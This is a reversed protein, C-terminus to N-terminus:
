EGRRWTVELVNQHPPRRRRGPRWFCTSLWQRATSPLCGLGVLRTENTAGGFAKSINPDTAQAAKRVALLMGGVFKTHRRSCVSHRLGREIRQVSLRRPSTQILPKRRKGSQWFCVALLSPTGAPAAVRNSYVAKREGRLWAGKACSGMMFLAAPEGM